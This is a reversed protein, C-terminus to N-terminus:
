GKIPIARWGSNTAETDLM